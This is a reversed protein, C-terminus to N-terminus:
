VNKYIIVIEVLRKYHPKETKGTKLSRTLITNYSHSFMNGARFLSKYFHHIFFCMRYTGGVCMKNIRGTQMIFIMICSYIINIKDRTTQPKNSIISIKEGLIKEMLTSKGVNARGVVSVFGSKM